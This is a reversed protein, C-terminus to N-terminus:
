NLISKVQSGYMKTQFETVYRTNQAETYWYTREEGMGEDYFVRLSGRSVKHYEEANTLMSQVIKAEPIGIASATKLYDISLSFHDIIFKKREAM